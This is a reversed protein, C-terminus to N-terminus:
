SLAFHWLRAAIAPTADDPLDFKLPSIAPFLPKCAYRVPM